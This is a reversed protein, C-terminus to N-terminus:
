RKELKRGCCLVYMITEYDLSIVVAGTLVIFIGIVQEISLKQDLFFFCLASFFVTDTNFISGVVGAKGISFCYQLLNISAVGTAGAAM